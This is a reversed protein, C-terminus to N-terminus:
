KGGGRKFKAQKAQGNRIMESFLFPLWENVDVRRYVAAGSTLFRFQLYSYVRKARTTAYKKNAKIAGFIAEREVSIGAQKAYEVALDFVDYDTLCWSYDSM